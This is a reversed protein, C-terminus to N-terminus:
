KVRQFGSLTRDAPRKWIRIFCTHTHYLHLLMTRHSCEPIKDADEVYDPIELQVNQGRHEIRREFNFRKLTAQKLKGLYLRYIM